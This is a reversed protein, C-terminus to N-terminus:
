KTRRIIRVKIYQGVSEKEMGDEGQPQDEVARAAGSATPVARAGVDAEPASPRGTSSLSRLCRDLNQLQALVDTPVRQETTYATWITVNHSLNHIGYLLVSALTHPQVHVFNRVKETTKQVIVAAEAFSQAKSAVIFGSIAGKATM